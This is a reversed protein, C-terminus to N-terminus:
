GGCLNLFNQRLLLIGLGQMQLIELPLLVDDEVEKRLRQRRTSRDFSATEAVVNLLKSLEIRYYNPNASIFKDILLFEGVFLLEVEREIGICVLLRSLRETDKAARAVGVPDRKHDILLPDNALNVAFDIRLLM